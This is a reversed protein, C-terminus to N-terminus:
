LHCYIKYHFRTNFHALHLFCPKQIIQYIEIPNTIISITYKHTQTDTQRKVRNTKYEDYAAKSRGRHCIFIMM